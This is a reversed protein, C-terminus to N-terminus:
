NLSKHSLYKKAFNCESPHWQVKSIILWCQNLHHGSAQHCWAMVQTFTAGCRHQCICNSSEIFKLATFALFCFLFLNWSIDDSTLWESYHRIMLFANLLMWVKHVKSSSTVLITTMVTGASPKAGLPALVDAPVATIFLDLDQMHLLRGFSPSHWISQYIWDTNFRRSINDIYFKHFQGSTPIQISMTMAKGAFTRPTILWWSGYHYKWSWVNKKPSRHNQLINMASIDTHFKLHQDPIRPKRGALSLRRRHNPIHYAMTVHLYHM